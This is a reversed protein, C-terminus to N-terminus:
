IRLLHSYQLPIVFFVKDFTKVHCHIILFVNNSSICYTTHQLLYFLLIMISMSFYLPGTRTYLKTCKWYTASRRTMNNSNTLANVIIVSFSVKWVRQLQEIISKYIFSHFLYLLAHSSEIKFFNHVHQM